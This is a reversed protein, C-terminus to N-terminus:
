TVHPCNSEANTGIQAELVGMMKCGGNECIPVYVRLM